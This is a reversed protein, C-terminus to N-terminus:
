SDHNTTLSLPYSVDNVIIACSVAGDTKGTSDPKVGNLYAPNTTPDVISTIYLESGHFSSLTSNLNDLTLPLPVGAIPTYNLDPQTNTLQAGIDSPFYTEGSYLYVLPAVITM